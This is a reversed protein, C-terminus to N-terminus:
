GRTSWDGSEALGAAREKKPQPHLDVCRAADAALRWALVQFAGLATMAAIAVFAVTSTALKAIEVPSALLAEHGGTTLGELALQTGLGLVVALATYSAAGTTESGMFGTLSALVVGIAIVAGAQALGFPEFLLMVCYGLFPVSAALAGALIWRARSYARYRARFLLASPLAIAGLLRLLAWAGGGVAIGLAPGVGRLGLLGSLVGLVIMAVARQRYSVRVLAAVLAVTGLVFSPVAGGRGGGSVGGLHIGGLVFYGAGLAACWIRAGGRGPEVPALDEMLAESALLPKPSTQRTTSRPPADGPTTTAPTPRGAPHSPPSSDIQPRPAMPSPM